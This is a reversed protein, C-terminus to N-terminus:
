VSRWRLDWFTTWYYNKNLKESHGWGDVRGGHRGDRRRLKNCKMVDSKFGGNQKVAKM